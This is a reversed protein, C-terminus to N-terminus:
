SSLLLMTFHNNATDMRFGSSRIIQYSMVDTGICSAVFITLRAKKGIRFPLEITESSATNVSQHAIDQGGLQIFLRAEDITGSGKVIVDGTVLKLDESVKYSAWFDELVAHYVEIEVPRWPGATM